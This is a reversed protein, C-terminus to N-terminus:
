KESGLPCDENKGLEDDSRNVGEDRESDRDSHGGSDGDSSSASDVNVVKPM